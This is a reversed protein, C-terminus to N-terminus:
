ILVDILMCLTSASSICVSFCSVTKGLFSGLIGLHPNHNLSAFFTEDPIETKKLWEQFDRSRKDHLCFHVFHRNVAVHISGKVLRINHPPRSGALTWRFLDKNGGRCFISVKMVFVQGHLICIKESAFISFKM